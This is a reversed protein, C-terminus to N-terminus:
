DGILSRVDNDDARLALWWLAALPAFRGALMAASLVYLGPGTTTIPDHSLGVCGVSSVSLYTVRDPPLQPQLTLLVLTVIAVLILYVGTWAVAIGFIRGPLEDRLARRTGLLLVAITPLGLGAGGAFNSGLLMLGVTIWQTARPLEAIPLIAMGPTRANASIASAVAMAHRPQQWDLTPLVILVGVLYAAATLVITLKAYASMSRRRVISEFLELLTITGLGGLLGLPLLILHLRPSSVGPLAGIALGNGAFSSAANFFPAVYGATFDASLAGGVLGAAVIAVATAIMLKEDSHNLRLVRVLALASLSLTLWAGGFTMVSVAILGIRGFSAVSGWAQEFGGGTTANVASFFARDLPIQYGSAFVGPFYLVGNGVLLLGAFAALMMLPTLPNDARSITKM